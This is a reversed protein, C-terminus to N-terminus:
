SCFTKRAIVFRMDTVSDCWSSWVPPQEELERCVLYDSHSIIDCTRHLESEIASWDIHDDISVHIDGDSQNPRYKNMIRQKWSSLMNVFLDKASRDCPAGSLEMLHQSSFQSGLNQLYNLYEPDEEWYSPCVEHDIYIIGNPKVVRILEKVAALYDPIHHLVSYTAVMDFTDDKIDSLDEGNLQITNLRDSRGLDTRIKEICERSVDGAVVFAQMSLLHRALNGTGSGFDLVKPLVSGTRIESITQQLVNKIRRQETPNFIEVHKKEYSSVLLDHRIANYRIFMSASFKKM